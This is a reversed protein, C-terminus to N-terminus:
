PVSRPRVANLKTRELTHKNVLQYLVHNYQDALSKASTALEMYLSSVLIDKNLTQHNINKLKQYTILMKSVPPKSTLLPCQVVFHIPSWVAKSWLPLVPARALFLGTWPTKMRIPPFHWMSFLAFCTWYRKSPSATLAHTWSTRIFISIDQLSCRTIHCPYPPSFTRFSNWSCQLLWDMKKTPPPRYIFSM